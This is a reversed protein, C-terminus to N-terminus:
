PGWNIVQNGFDISHKFSRLFDMGLLGDFPFGSGSEIIVVDLDTKTKPGLTVRDLKLHWAQVVRGDAVQFRARAAGQLKLNLRMAAENTILTTSAGTDLILTVQATRGEHALTVPVLAHNGVMTLRTSESEAGVRTVVKGFSKPQKYEKIRSHLQEALAPDLDRLADYEKAAADKDYLVLYAVGLHYRTEASGPAIRAAEKLAAVAKEVVEVNTAGESYGIKLYAMGLGKQAEASGPNLRAADRFAQAAKQYDQTQLYATGQRLFDLEKEEAAGLPATAIVLISVILLLIKV